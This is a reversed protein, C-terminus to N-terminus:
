FVENIQMRRGNAYHLIAYAIVIGRERDVVAIRVETAPGWPKPGLNAKTAAWTAATRSVM